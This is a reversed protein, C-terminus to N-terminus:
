SGKRRSSRKGPQVDPEGAFNDPAVGVGVKLTNGKVSFQRNQEVASRAGVEIENAGVATQVNGRVANETNPSAAGAAATRNSGGKATKVDQAKLSAKFSHPAVVLGFEKLRDRFIYMVIVICVGAILAIWVTDSM